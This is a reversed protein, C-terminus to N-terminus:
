KKADPPVIFDPVNPDFKFLTSANAIWGQDDVAEIVFHGEPTFIGGSVMRNGSTITVEYAQGSGDDLPNDGDMLTGQWTVSGDPNSKANEIKTKYTQGIQDIPLDMTDGSVLSELKLRDFNIFERGDRLEEESLSLKDVDVNGSQWATSKQMAALVADPDFDRGNRRSKMEDLRTEFGSPYKGHKTLDIGNKPDGSKKPNFGVSNKANEPSPPPGQDSLTNSAGPPQPDSILPPPKEGSTIWFAIGLLIFVATLAVFFSKM